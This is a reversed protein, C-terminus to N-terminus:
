REVPKGIPPATAQVFVVGRGELAAIIGGPQSSDAGRAVIASEGVMPLGDLTRITKGDAEILTLRDGGLWLRGLTDRCLRAVQRGGTEIAPSGVKSTALAFTRVGRDTALLLEDNNWKIADRIKMVGVNDKVPLLDLRIDKISPRYSLRLLQENEPDLLIWPPGTDNIARLGTGLELFRASASLPWALIPLQVWRGDAFRKLSGSWGNWLSGDSTLFSAAPYLEANENGLVQAQDNFWRPTTRTGPIAFDASVTTIGGGVDVMTQTESWGRYEAPLEPVEKGVVAKFPPAFSVQTWSGNRFRWPGDGDRRGLVLVGASSNEIRAVREVGLQGTLAHNTVKGASFQLLGDLRTVLLM